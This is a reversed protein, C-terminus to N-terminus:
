LLNTKEGSLRTIGTRLDNNAQIRALITLRPHIMKITGAPQRM